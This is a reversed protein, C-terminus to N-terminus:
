DLLHLSCVTYGAKLVAVHLMCCSQFLFTYVRVMATTGAGFLAVMSLIALQGIYTAFADAVLAAYVYPHALGASWAATAEGTAVMPVVLFPIGVITTCYLM